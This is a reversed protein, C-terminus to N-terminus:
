ELTSNQVMDAYKTFYDEGFYKVCIESLTGDEKMEKLAKDVAACLEPKDKSIM